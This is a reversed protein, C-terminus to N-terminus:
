AGTTIFAVFKGQATATAALESGASALAKGAEQFAPVVCVLRGKPIASFDAKVLGSISGKLEELPSPTFVAKGNVKGDILATLKASGQVIAAGRAKLEVLHAAFTAQADAKVGAKFNYDVNFSPPTCELSAKAQASAQAQCDASAKCDASASPPEFKGECGGSCEADCSGSCQVDGKCQADGQNVTCKGHCTGACKASAGAKFECSGSCDGDCTGQCQNNADKSSCTGNCTGHCTGDCKATAGAKLECTGECTGSCDVTPATVVCSAEGSCKGSCSGSCTGECKVSAQGPNVKVDCDAKAECKAQAQVAVDVSAQCAAPKYNVKLGGQLNTSIEAKAAAIVDDVM